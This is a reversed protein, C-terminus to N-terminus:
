RCGALGSLRGGSPTTLAQKVQPWSGLWAVKVCALALRSCRVMAARSSGSDWSLGLELLDALTVNTTRVPADDALVTGRSDTRAETRRGGEVLGLSRAYARLSPGPNETAAEANHSVGRRDATVMGAFPENLEDTTV